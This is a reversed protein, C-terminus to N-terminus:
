RRVRGFSRRGTPRSLRVLGRDQRTLYRDRMRGVYTSVETDYAQARGTDDGDETLLRSAVVYALIPHFEPAFWPRDTDGGFTAGAGGPMRYHLTWGSEPEPWLELENGGLGDPAVAYRSPASVIGGPLVDMQGSTVPVLSVVDGEASTAWVELPEAGVSADGELTQTVAAPASVVRDNPGWEAMGNLEAYAEDLRQAVATGALLTESLYGTLKRVRAVLDARTLGATSPTVPM